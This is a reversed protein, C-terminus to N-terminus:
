APNTLAFNTPALADFVNEAAFRVRREEQLELGADEILGDLTQGAALYSQMVRGFLWSETWAPDTFRRDGRPPAIDSSGRAVRALDIGLRGTRRAVRGPKFALKAGLKVAEAGPM